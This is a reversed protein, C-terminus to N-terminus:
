RSATLAFGAEWRGPWSGAVTPPMAMPGLLMIVFFLFSSAGAYV